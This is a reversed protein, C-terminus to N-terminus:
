ELHVVPHSPGRKTPWEIVLMAAFMIAGGLVLRITLPEQGVGVSLIGAWLVETTLLIAVRGPDMHGQAWTQLFFGVATAFVATIIIATWVGADPPAVFGNGDGFTWAGTLVAVVVIQVLTLAYPDSGPSWVGLTVIHLAFLVACVLVWVSGPGIGFDTISLTGLAILALIAGVWVRPSLKQKLFIWGILPTFIVYLGTLFGTIAATSMELGITQTIYGIGLIAGVISGTWLVRPTIDRLVRPRALVLVLAALAFRTFLFDPIPQREIADKMLVFSAGWSATVSLLAVAAITEQRRSNSM